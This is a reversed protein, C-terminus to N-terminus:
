SFSIVEAKKHQGTFQQQGSEHEKEGRFGYRRFIVGRIGSNPGSKDPSLQLGEFRIFPLVSEGAVPQLWSSRRKQWSEVDSDSM